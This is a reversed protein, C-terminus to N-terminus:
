TLNTMVVGQHGAGGKKHQVTADKLDKRAKIVGKGVVFEESQGLIELLTNSNLHNVRDSHSECVKIHIKSTSASDNCKLKHKLVSVKEWVNALECKNAAPHDNRPLTREARVVHVDIKLTDRFLGCVKQRTDENETQKMGFIMVSIDPDFHVTTKEALQKVATDITTIRKDISQEM